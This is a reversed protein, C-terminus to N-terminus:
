VVKAAETHSIKDFSVHNVEVLLDGPVLGQQEAMGGEDVLSVYIGIGYEVGGRISFGFGKGDGGSEGIVIHITNTGKDRVNSSKCSKSTESVRGILTNKSSESKSEDKPKASKEKRHKKSKLHLATDAATLPPRSRQLKKSQKAPMTDFKRSKFRLCKEFDDLDAKPIVKKILAFLQTKAPTDLLLKLNRVFQSIDRNIHFQNLIEVFESKESLDLHMSLADQLRRVSTSM